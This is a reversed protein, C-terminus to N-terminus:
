ASLAKVRIYDSVSRFGGASAAEEMTQKETRSLRINVQETRAGVDAPLPPREGQELITAVSLVLSKRTSELCEAETKGDGMAMPLEVGRGFYCQEDDLWRIVIGYRAVIAEARALIKPDFPRHLDLKKNQKKQKASM